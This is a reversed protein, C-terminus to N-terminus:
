GGSPQGSGDDLEAVEIDELGKFVLALYKTEAGGEVRFRGDARYRELQALAERRAGELDGGGKKVHKVEIVWDYRARPFRARDGRLYIDPYGGGMEAESHVFYFEALGFWALLGFKLSREDLGREDRHSTAKLFRERFLGVFRGVEGRTAMTELAEGIQDLGGGMGEQELMEAAYEWLLKRTAENPVRFTVSAMGASDITLFGLYHMLSVFNDPRGVESLLFARKLVSRVKGKEAVERLIRLREEEGVRGIVERIREYDTRVNTSLLEEPYGEGRALEKLFHLVMEPNYMRQRAKRSFLYGDYYERMLEVAEGVEVGEGGVRAVLEAVEEETFGFMENFEWDLTLHMAINFGSTIDELVLPSVGTIFIRSVAGANAGEKLAKYFAKVQGGSALLDYYQGNKKRALLENVFNDYEDVLVYAKLDRARLIDMVLGLMVAADETTQVASLLYEVDSSLMASYQKVFSVLAGRVRGAFGRKLAQVSESAQLGAFSLRLVLYAGQEETRHEAIWLGGFLEEFRDRKLLDYYCALMSVMLSKGFRRPRLIVPYRHVEELKPIFHTRDVYLYGGGRLTEFDAIGTALKQM